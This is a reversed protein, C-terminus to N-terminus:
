RGDTVWVRSFTGNGLMTWLLLHLVVLVVLAGIARSRSSSSVWCAAFVGPYISLLLDLNYPASVPWWRVLFILSPLAFLAAQVVTRRSASLCAWALLPVGAVASFMGFEGFGSLSLLPNAIRHEFIASHLLPRYGLQRNSELSLRWVTVYLFIWGLYCAVAASAFTAARIWGRRVGGRADLAALTGGAIGFLGFGHLATHLGQLCGAVWASTQAQLLRRSRGLALLPAVGAAMSLYGLEWYGFYLLVLPMALALGVYRCSQRSWRHWAAAVGLELLFVLGALRSLASFARAPSRDTRGYAADLGVMVVDSLHSHLNIDGGAVRFRDEFSRRSQVTDVGGPMLDRAHYRHALPVAVFSVAACVLAIIVALRRHRRTRGAAFTVAVGLVLVIASQVQPMAPSATKAVVVIAALWGAAHLCLLVGTVALLLTMGAHSLRGSRVMMGQLGPHLASEVVPQQSAPAHTM